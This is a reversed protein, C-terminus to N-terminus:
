LAKVHVDDLSWFVYGRRRNRSDHSLSTISPVAVARLEENVLDIRPQFLLTIPACRSSTHLLCESPPSPADLLTLFLFKDHDEPTIAAYSSCYHRPYPDEPGSMQRRSVCCRASRTSHRRFLRRLRELSVQSENRNTLSHYIYADPGGAFFRVFGVIRAHMSPLEQM